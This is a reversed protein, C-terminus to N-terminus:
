RGLSSNCIHLIRDRPCLLPPWRSPRTVFELLKVPIKTNQGMARLPPWYRWNRPSEQTRNPSDAWEKRPKLTQLCKPKLKEPTSFCSIFRHTQQCRSPMRDQGSLEVTVKTTNAYACLYFCVAVKLKSNHKAAYLYWKSITESIRALLHPM